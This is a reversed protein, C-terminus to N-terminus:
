AHATGVSKAHNSVLLKLLNVSQNDYYPLISFSCLVVLQCKKGSEPATKSLGIWGDVHKGCVRRGHM